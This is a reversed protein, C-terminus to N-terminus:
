CMPRTTVKPQSQEDWVVMQGVGLVIPVALANLAHRSGLALLQRQPTSGWADCGLLFECQLLMGSLFMAVGMWPTFGPALVVHCVHIAKAV